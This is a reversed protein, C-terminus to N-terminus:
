KILIQCNNCFYTTRSNHKAIIIDSKCQKCSNQSYVNLSFQNNGTENEGVKHDKLTTGKNKISNKLVKVISKSLRNYDDKSLNCTLSNPNIKADFLTESAYINGVGVVIKNQMIFNKINTKKNNGMNFLYDESIFKKDFPEIGCNKIYKNNKYDQSYMVMGFKRPDNFRITKNELVIDVHSHKIVDSNNNVLTLSGSMGLHIIVEHNGTIFLIIYKGRRKIDIITEKAILSIEDGIPERLKRERIIVSHIKKNIIKDRIALVSTEVEPLEPM